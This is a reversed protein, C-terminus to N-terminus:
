VQQSKWKNLLEAAKQLNEDKKIFCYRVNDEGLYKHEDCYFASPPIGQIGVNKTMWKTFRYDQQPDTEDELRVFKELPKWNAIMFYGGEPITPSMGIDELFKAMYDRKPLLEDALSTFYCDPKGFRKLEEEFGIAVAEQTPTSSTYVCNQHVVKINWLLNAPGYAWGLKWGTVSFTKGASGITITREWMGPLTAFRIHKAPDFTMWEYVEDSIVLTNWKKALNAIFQLEDLTFVKGLPNHPTNIIIGKTKENFLRTMENRDFIWDASSMAGTTKTPKLPIFRPVGGAMRVQPEYCDFFPEIIIWEDGVETHGQIACYLAEYAGATVIIENYPDLERDLVESYVKGIAEVLRPHGFARTYQNILPNNSKVSEALADTVHKPAFFDPFGQGLNLPKYKAALNIYEVWVSKDNGKCRIPLDFKNMAAFNRIVRLYSKHSQWNLLKLPSVSLFM